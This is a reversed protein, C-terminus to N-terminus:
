TMVRKPNNFAQKTRTWLLILGAEVVGVLPFVPKISTMKSIERWANVLVLPKILDVVSQFLTTTVTAIEMPVAGVTIASLSQEMVAYKALEANCVLL